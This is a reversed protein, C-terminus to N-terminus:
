QCDSSYIRKKFYFKLVPHNNEMEVWALAQKPIHEKREPKYTEMRNIPIVAVVKGLKKLVFVNYRPVEPEEPEVPAVAKTKQPSEPLPDGIPAPNVAQLGEVPPPGPTLGQPLVPTFGEIPALSQNPVMVANPPPSQRLAPMFGNDTMGSPQMDIPTDSIPKMGKEMPSLRLVGADESPLRGTGSKAPIPQGPNVPMPKAMAPDQTSMAGTAAPQPARLYSTASQTGLNIRPSGANADGPKIEYYGKPILLGNYRIDQNIRALAYPSYRKKGYDSLEEPDVDWYDRPPPIFFTQPRVPTGADTQKVGADYLGYENGSVGQTWVGDWAFAPSALAFAAALALWARTSAKTPISM